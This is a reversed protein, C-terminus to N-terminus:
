SEAGAWDAVRPWVDAIAGARVVGDAVFAVHSAFRRALALEQAVHVITLGERRLRELDACLRVAASPDLNALPEDLALLRPRRVLARGIFARRREGVSLTRLERGALMALGLQALVSRVAEANVSSNANAGARGSGIWEAVTIPLPLAAPPEQPVFGLGSRDGGLPLSVTGRLPRLRGLLTLLLTSKGAGNPGVFFWSQGREICLDVNRLVPTGRGCLLGECGLLAANL